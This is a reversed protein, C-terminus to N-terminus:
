DAYDQWNEAYKQWDEGRKLAALMSALQHTNHVSVCDGDWTDWSFGMTEWDCSERGYSGDHLIADGEFGDFLVQFGNMFYKVKKISVGYKECYNCLSILAHLRNLDIDIPIFKAIEENSM